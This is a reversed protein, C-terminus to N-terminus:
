TKPNPTYCSNFVIEINDHHLSPLAGLRDDLIMSKFKNVFERKCQNDIKKVKVITDTGKLRLDYCNETQNREALVVYKM